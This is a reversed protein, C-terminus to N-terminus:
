FKPNTQPQSIISLSRTMSASPSLSTLGTPSPCRIPTKKRSGNRASSHRSPILTSFYLNRVRDTLPQALADYPLSLSVVRRSLPPFADVHTPEESHFKRFYMYSRSPPYSSNFSSNGLISVSFLPVRIIMSEM